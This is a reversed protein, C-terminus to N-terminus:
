HKLYNPTLLILLCYKKAKIPNSIIPLPNLTITSDLPTFSFRHGNFLVGESIRKYLTKHHLKLGYHKKLRIISNFTNVLKGLSDYVYVAFGERKSNTDKFRHDYIRNEKRAAFGIAAKHSDTLKFNPRIGRMKMLSTSSHKFGRSSKEFKLINYEPSLLDLWYQERNDLLNVSCYELNALIFNQSGYKIFAKKINSIDKKNNKLFAPRLYRVIRGSKRTGLDKAQGIYIKKNISNFWLYIDSKGKNEDLIQNRYKIDTIKDYFNLAYNKWNPNLTNDLNNLNNLPVTYSILFLNDTIKKHTNYFLFNIIRDINKKL